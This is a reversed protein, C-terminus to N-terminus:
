RSSAKDIALGREICSNCKGCPKGQKTPEYCSFTDEINVGSFDAIIEEKSIELLPAFVRNGSCTQLLLSISDIFEKRCDAYENFDNKTCGLYIDTNPFHNAALACFVINRAPVVRPGAEQQGIRMKSTDM